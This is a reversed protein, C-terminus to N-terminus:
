MDGFLSLQKMPIQDQKPQEIKKPAPTEPTPAEGLKSLDEIVPEPKKYGRLPKCTHCYVKGDTGVVSEVGTKKGCKACVPQHGDALHKSLAATAEKTPGAFSWQCIHCAVLTQHQENRKILKIDRLPIQLLGDPLMIIGCQGATVRYEARQGNWMVTDGWKFEHTISSSNRPTLPQPPEEMLCLSIDRRQFRTLGNGDFVQYLEHTADIGEIVKVTGIDGTRAIKVKDGVNVQPYFFTPNPASKWVDILTRREGAPVIVSTKQLPRRIERIKMLYGWVSFWGTNRRVEDLRAKVRELVMETQSVDFNPYVLVQDKISTNIVMDRRITTIHFDTKPYTKILAALIMGVAINNSACVHCLWKNESVRVNGGTRSKGCNTCRWYGNRGSVWRDLRPTPSTSIPVIATNM